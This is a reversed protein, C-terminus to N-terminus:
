EDKICRMSRGIRNEYKGRIITARDYRLTRFYPHYLDAAWYPTWFTAIQKLYYFDGDEGGIGHNRMGGPLACFNYQDTAGSNPSMWHAFGTEKLKGGEDTGRGEYNEEDAETESMGLYMELQKWELDLTIHWGEPAVERSDLLVFANYLLGYIKENEPDNNYSCYAGTDLLGWESNDTVNPIPDGNTFHKVRLNEAMWIQDGIKVTKYVNGDIDIMPLVIGILTDSNLGIKDRVALKTKGSNLSTRFNHSITDQVIWETDWSGDNEFDWRYELNKNDEFDYCLSVDYHYIYLVEKDAQAAVRIYPRTNVFINLITNSINGAGDTAQVKVTKNGGGRGYIHNIIDLPQWEVDFNGDNEYDYRVKIENFASLNDVCETADFAFQTENTIGSDPTVNIAIDPPRTDLIIEDYVVDSVTGDTFRAKMYVKQPGEEKLLYWKKSSDALEWDADSFDAKNSLIMEHAGAFLIDLTVSDSSTYKDNNNILIVPNKSVGTASSRMLTSEYDDNDVATIRFWYCYGDPLATTDTYSNMKKDVTSILVYGSSKNVSRYIKFSVVKNNPPINWSLKIGESIIESTLKFPDGDTEPNIVDFPNDAAPATPKTECSVFSIILSIATFIITYKIVSNM